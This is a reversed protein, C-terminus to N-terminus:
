MRTSIAFTVFRNMNTHQYIRKLVVCKYLWENDSKLQTSRLASCDKLGIHCIYMYTHVYTGVEHMYIHIYMLIFARLLMRQFDLLYSYHRPM